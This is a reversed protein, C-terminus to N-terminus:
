HTVHKRPRPHHKARHRKSRHRKVCRPKGKVKKKRWGRHCMLPKPKPKVTATVPAPTLPAPLPAVVPGPGLSGDVGTVVAGPTIGILTATDFTPQGNWWQTPYGDTPIEWFEGEELESAEPSFVVKFAGGWLGNFRYAGSAPSKLCALPWAEEAETVCIEVGKLPAGTAALRATGSIQGGPQLAINVGPKEGAAPVVVLGPYSAGLLNQKGETPFFEIEYAGAALGQIVYAGFANTQVCGFGVFDTAYACVEVGAVPLGTAAATVTGSIKAGEELVADIGTTTGVGVAVTLAAFKTAADDYFQRVYNQESSPMFAVVYEGAPLGTILYAGDFQTKACHTEEEEEFEGPLEACVNVGALSAGGDVTVTGAISGPGAAEGVAPLALAVFAVLLPILWAAAFTSLRGGRL